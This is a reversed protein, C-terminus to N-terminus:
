ASGSYTGADGYEFFVQFQHREFCKLDGGNYSKESTDSYVGKENKGGKLNTISVHFMEDRGCDIWAKGPWKKVEPDCQDKDAWQRKLSASKSDDKEPCIIMRNKADTATVGMFYMSQGKCDTKAADGVCVVPTESLAKTTCWYNVM